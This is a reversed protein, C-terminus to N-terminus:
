ARQATLLPVLRSLACAKKFFDYDLLENVTARSSVDVCLCAALFRKLEPSLAEPKKITPTGNTAILYLAQLPEEEFYPPHLEVMEIAMIGLSWIDVKTGYEKQKVVEPAMWHATGTMDARKSKPNSLKACLGFNTSGPALAGLMINASRIDRHIFNLNHLHALGKCTEFCVRSVQDEHVTNNKIIDTLAGGAMYEMAIWLEASHVLYSELFFVVNPHQSEKMALIENVVRDKRPQHSLDTQKIAVKRGTLLTKAIYFHWGSVEPGVEEIKRYIANPDDDSVISRLSEMIQVETATTM